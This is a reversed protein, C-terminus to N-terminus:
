EMGCVCVRAEHSEMDGKEGTVPASVSWFEWEGGWKAGPLSVRPVPMVASQDQDCIHSELSWSAESQLGNPTM